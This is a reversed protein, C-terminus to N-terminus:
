KHSREGVHVSSWWTGQLGLARESIRGCALQANWLIGLNKVSLTLTLKLYKTENLYKLIRKLKGWNDEVPNKVRM